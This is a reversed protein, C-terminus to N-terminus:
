VREWEALFEPNDQTEPYSVSFYIAYSPTGRRHWRKEFGITAMERIIHNTGLEQPIYCPGDSDIAVARSLPLTNGSGMMQEMKIDSQFSKGYCELYFYRPIARIIWAEFWPTERHRNECEFHKLLYPGVLESEIRFPKGCVGCTWPFPGHGQRCRLEKLRYDLFLHKGCTPCAGTM